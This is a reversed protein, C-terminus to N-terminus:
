SFARLRIQVLTSFLRVLIVESRTSIPYSTVTRIQSRDDAPVLAAVSEAVRQYNPNTVIEWYDKRRDTGGYITKQRYQLADVIQQDSAAKLDDPIDAYLTQNRRDDLAQRLQEITYKSLNDNVPQPSTGTQNHQVAEQSTAQLCALILIVAIMMVTSAAYKMRIKLGCYAMM